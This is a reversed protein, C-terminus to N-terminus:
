PSLVEKVRAAIHESLIRQGRDNYHCCDDGYVPEEVDDFLYRLDWVAVGRARLEDVRDLLVPYAEPIAEAYPQSPNFAIRKEEETFIRGTPLYQNPQTFHLYPVGRAALLEHMALACRTWMEATWRNLADEAMPEERTNVHLIRSGSRERGTLREVETLAERLGQNLRRSRLHKVMFGLAFRPEWAKLKELRADARKVRLVAELEELTLARGSLDALGEIADASPMAIEYGRQNNLHGISVENFGDITLALDFRQGVALFYSLVALTQPQKYGGAGFNLVQVHRSAWGPVRRLAAALTGERQEFDAYHAAVSGGFVGVLLVNTDSPRFPYDHPRHAHFGYNNSRGAVDPRWIFGFVPHLLNRFVTDERDGLINDSSVPRARHHTYYLRRERVFYLALSVAELLVLTVVLNVLVLKVARRRV